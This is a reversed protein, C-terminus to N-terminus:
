LKSLKVKIATYLFLLNKYTPAKNFIGYTAPSVVSLICIQIGASVNNVDSLAGILISKLLSDKSSTKGYERININISVPISSFSRLSLIMLYSKGLIDDLLSKNYACM